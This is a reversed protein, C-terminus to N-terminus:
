FMCTSRFSLFWLRSSGDGGWDETFGAPNLVFSKNRVVCNTMKLPSSIISATIAPPSGSTVLCSNPIYPGKTWVLAAIIPFAFHCLFLVPFVCSKNSKICKSQKTNLNWTSSFESHVRYSSKLDLVSCVFFCFSCNYFLWKEMKLHLCMFFPCM